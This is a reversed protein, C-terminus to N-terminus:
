IHEEASLIYGSSIEGTKIWPILGNSYYSVNSRKPTSGTEVRAIEIIKRINWGKENTVPDGFM